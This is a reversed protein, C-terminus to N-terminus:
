RAREGPAPGEGEDTPDEGRSLSDWQDLRRDRESSASARTRGALGPPAPGGPPAPEIGPPAPETGPPAADVHGGDREYRRSPGPWRRGRVVGVLGGTAILLGGAASAAPWATVRADGRSQGVTGTVRAAAPAAVGAPDHWVPVSLAAATLGAAVLLGTVVARVLRGATLAVVIGAAAVLGVAAAGPAALRGDAGVQLRGGAGAVTVTVWNRGTALVVLGAGVLVALLAVARSTPGARRDPRGPGTM